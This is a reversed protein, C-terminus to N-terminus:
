VGVVLCAVTTFSGGINLTAVRRAGDVQYDGATGTVQKAADLLMRVGTAGVPHGLGLLGGSVNVPVAGGPEIVGDQVARWSAGPATLGLHDIAVYESVTFCDHVEVADLTAPGAIGARQYMDCVAWRLHPLVYGPQGAGGLKDELLLSATRHGWGLIRPVADLPVRRHRAWRGAYGASALVLAAAGDTIRGCDHKRLMGAVVPNAIDDEYFNDPGIDWDRTQANPNRRANAFNVEAIRGLHRHDLGYRRDYEEAIRAFMAPWPFPEGVAERGNWAACGLVAAAEKGGVNRLVEAGVVLAVDYRGAEIEAMASLVAVSGSACAAEHRSAPKGALHPDVAAVMGGLHGQGCLVEGVFNAVHIVDIDAAAVGAAALGNATAAEILSFLQGGPSRRAFDSQWGGLVFVDGHAM